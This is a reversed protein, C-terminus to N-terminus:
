VDREYGSHSATAERRDEVTENLLQMAKKFVAGGEGGKTPDMDLAKLVAGLKDLVDEATADSEMGLQMILRGLRNQPTVQEPMVTVETGSHAVTRPRRHQNNNRGGVTPPTTATQAVVAGTRLASSTATEPEDPPSTEVKPMAARGILSAQVGAETLSEILADGKMEGLLGDDLTALLQELNRRNTGEDDDGNGEPQAEVRRALPGLVDDRYAPAIKKAHGRAMMEGRVNVEALNM